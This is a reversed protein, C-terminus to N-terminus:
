SVADADSAKDADSQAEASSTDTTQTISEYIKNYEAALVDYLLSLWLAVYSSIFSAAVSELPPYGGTLLRVLCSWYTLCKPCSLFGIRLRAVRQIAESLGMSIFLVCCLTVLAAEAIM